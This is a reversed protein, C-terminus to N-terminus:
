RERQGSSSVRTWAVVAGTPCTHYSGLVYDPVRLDVKRRDPGNQKNCGVSYCKRCIVLGM